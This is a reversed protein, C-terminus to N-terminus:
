NFLTKTSFICHVTGKANTTPRLQSAHCIGVGHVLQAHAHTHTGWRRYIARLPSLPFHSPSLLVCACMCLFLAIRGGCCFFSHTLYVLKVLFPHFPILDSEGAFPNDTYFNRILLVYLVVVVPIMAIRVIWMIIKHRKTTSVVPYLIAAGLIGMLFGGLHAFNDVGPIFGIGLGVILDVTLM